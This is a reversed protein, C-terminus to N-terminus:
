LVIDIELSREDFGMDPWSVTLIMPGPAPRPSIWVWMTFDDYGERMFRNAVPQGAKYSYLSAIHEASDQLRVELGSFADFDRGRLMPDGGIIRARSPSEIKDRSDGHRSFELEIGDRYPRISELILKFDTGYDILVVPAIASIPLVKAPDISELPATDMPIDIGSELALKLQQRFANENKILVGSCVLIGSRQLLSWEDALRLVILAARVRKSEVQQRVIIEESVSQILAGLRQANSDGEATAPLNAWTFAPANLEDILNQLDHGAELVSFESATMLRTEEHRLFKADSYRLQLQDIEMERSLLGKWWTLWQAGLLAPNKPTNPPLALRQETASLSLPPPVMPDPPVLLGCVDRIYLAAHLIVPHYDVALRWSGSENETYM